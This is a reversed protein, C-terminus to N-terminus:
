LLHYIYRGYRGSPELPNVEAWIQSIHLKRRMFKWAHRWFTQIDSVM